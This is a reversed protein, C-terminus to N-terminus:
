CSKHLLEDFLFWFNTIKGDFPVFLYCYALKPESGNWIDPMDLFNCIYKSFFM